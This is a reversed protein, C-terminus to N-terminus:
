VRRGAWPVDALTRVYQSQVRTAVQGCDPCTAEDEALRAYVVVADDAGTVAEVRLPRPLITAEQRQMPCSRPLAARGSRTSIEVLNAGRLSIAPSGDLPPLGVRRGRRTPSRDHICM